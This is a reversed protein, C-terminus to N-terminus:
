SRRGSATTSRLASEAAENAGQATSLDVALYRVGEIPRTSVTRAATVVRVGADRLTAVVAAGVGRTGGTILARQSALQLDFTV